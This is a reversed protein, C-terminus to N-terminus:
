SAKEKCISKIISLLDNYAYAAGKHFGNDGKSHHAARNTVYDELLELALRNKTM